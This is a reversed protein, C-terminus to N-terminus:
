CGFTEALRNRFNSIKKTVLIETVFNMKSRAEQYKIIMQNNFDQYQTFLANQEEKNDPYFKFELLAKHFEEKNPVITQMDNRPYMLYCYSILDGYKQQVEFTKDLRDFVNSRLKTLYKLFDKLSKDIVKLILRLSTWNLTFRSQRRLAKKVTCNMFEKNLILKELHDHFPAEKNM